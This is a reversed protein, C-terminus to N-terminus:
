EAVTAHVLVVTLLGRSHQAHSHSNHIHNPTSNINTGVFRNIVRTTIIIVAVVARAVEPFLHTRMDASGFGPTADGKPDKHRNDSHRLCPDADARDAPAAWPAAEGTPQSDVQSFAKRLVRPARAAISQVGQECPAAVHVDRPMASAKCERIKTCSSSKGDADPTCIM